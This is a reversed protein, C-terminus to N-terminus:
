AARSWPEAAHTQRSIFRGIVYALVCIAVLLGALAWKLQAAIELLAPTGAAAAPTYQMAFLLPVLLVAVNSFAVWFAARERSGCLETVITLLPRRLYAVASTAFLLTTLLGILYLGASTM